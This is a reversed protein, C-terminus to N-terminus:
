EDRESDIDDEKNSSVRWSLEDDENFTNSYNVTSSQVRYAGTSMDAVVSGASNVLDLKYEAVSKLNEIARDLFDKGRERAEKSGRGMQQYLYGQALWETWTTVMTPISTTTNFPSATLDYRKSLYKNVESEAWTICKSALATQGTFVTGVMMTELSTTTAYVGM